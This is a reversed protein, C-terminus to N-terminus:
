TGGLEDLAQQYTASLADSAEQLRAADASAQAATARAGAIGAELELLQRQLSALYSASVPDGSESQGGAALTGQHATALAFPQLGPQGLTEPPPIVTIPDFAAKVPGPDALVKRPDRLNKVVLEDDRVKKFRGDDRVKKFHPPDDVVKKIGVPPDRWPQKPVHCGPYMTRVAALDGPSLGNRQGIQANPDNPTITDQGDRSFANRPYHMISGYDYAGIDDGDSIHQNFQAAMGDQIHEWHITVFLDRDERSQEHWLGVAHGIEHIANGASCGAGLSITQQGGQMGVQSWCGGADTFRVYNPYQAANPATRHPFRFATNAEWHAIADTVRQQNPLAPDIEYPIQCNPWRYQSGTIGVAFAVNPGAAALQRAREGAAEVQEITGLAIDGEVVAVGEVNYYTVSKAAFTAGSIVAVGMDPSGRQEGSQAERGGDSNRPRAM